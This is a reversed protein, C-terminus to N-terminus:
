DKPSLAAISNDLSDLEEQMAEIKEALKDRQARLHRLAVVVHRPVKKEPRRPDNDILEAIAADESVKAM